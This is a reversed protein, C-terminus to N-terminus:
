YYRNSGILYFANKSIRGCSIDFELGKSSDKSKWVRVRLIPKSGKMGLQICNVKSEKVVCYETKLTRCPIIDVTSFDIVTKSIFYRM